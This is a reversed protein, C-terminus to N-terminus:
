TKQERLKKAPPDAMYYVAALLLEPNDGFMGLAVNHVNCLMGRLLGTKHDHDAHWDGSGGPDSRGCIACVHGQFALM